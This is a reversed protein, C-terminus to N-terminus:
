SEVELIKENYTRLAMQGYADKARRYSMGMCRALEKLQEDVMVEIRSTDRFRKAKNLVPLLKNIYYTEYIDMDVPDDVVAYSYFRAGPVDKATRHQAFRDRLRNSKGVYIVEGLEDHYRYVGSSLPVKCNEVNQMKTFELDPLCIM